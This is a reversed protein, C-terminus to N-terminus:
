VMNRSGTKQMMNKKHYEVARVNMRLLNAIEKNSFQQCTLIVVMMEKKTFTPCVVPGENRCPPNYSM